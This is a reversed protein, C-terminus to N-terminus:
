ESACIALSERLRVRAFGAAVESPLRLETEIVPQGSLNTPLLDLESGARPAPRLFLGVFRSFRTHTQRFPLCRGRSSMAPM